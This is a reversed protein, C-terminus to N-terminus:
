MGSFRKCKIRQRPTRKMPPSATFDKQIPTPYTVTSDVQHPAPEIVNASPNGEVPSTIDSHSDTSSRTKRKSASKANTPSTLSPLTSTSDGNCVVKEPLTQPGTPAVPQPSKVTNIFLHQVTINTNIYTILVYSILLSGLVDFSKDETAVFLKRSGSATTSSAPTSKPRGRKRAVPALSSTELSSEM